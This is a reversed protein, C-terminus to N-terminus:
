ATGSSFCPATVRLGGSMPASIWIDRYSDISMTLRHEAGTFVPELFLKKLGDLANELQGAGLKAKIGTIIPQLQQEPLDM